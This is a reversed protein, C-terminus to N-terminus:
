VKYKTWNYDRRYILYDKVEQNGYAEQEFPIRYYAYSGSKYKITGVIWYFVYLFLFGFILLEKYQEWHISEHDRTIQDIEGRSFVWPGLTIAGINIPSVYSLVVPVKSNEIFVPFNMDLGASRANKYSCRRIVM